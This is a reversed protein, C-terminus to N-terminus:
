LVPAEADPFLTGPLVGVLGPFRWVHLTGASPTQFPSLTLEQPTPRDLKELDPAGSPSAQHHRKMLSGYGADGSAHWKKTDM